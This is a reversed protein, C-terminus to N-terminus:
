WRKEIQRALFHNRNPDTQYLHALLEEVSADELAHSVIFPMLDELKVQAGRFLVGDGLLEGLSHKLIAAWLFNHLSDLSYITYHFDEGIICIGEPIYYFDHEHEVHIVYAHFLGQQKSKRKKQM